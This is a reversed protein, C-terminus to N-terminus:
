PTFLRERSWSIRVPEMTWLACSAGGSRTPTATRSTETQLGAGATFRPPWIRAAPIAQISEWGGSTPISGCSEASVSMRTPTSRTGSLNPMNPRTPSEWPRMSMVGHRTTSTL